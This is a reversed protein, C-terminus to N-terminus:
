SIFMLVVGLCLSQVGALPVTKHHAYAPFRVLVVNVVLAITFSITNFIVFEVTEFWFALIFLLLIDGVGMFLVLNRFRGHKFYLYLSLVALMLAIYMLNIGVFVFFQASFEESRQILTVLLLLLYLWLRVLRYRFDEYCIGLLILITLWKLWM